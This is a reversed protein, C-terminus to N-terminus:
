QAPPESAAVPATVVDRYRGTLAVVVVVTCCGLRLWSHVTPSGFPGSHISAPVQVTVVTLVTLWPLTPGRATRALDLLATGVVLGATYYSWTAPDTAVRLAVVVAVIGATRHRRWMVFALAAGGLLQVPRCWWPTLTDHSGLLHLVSGASVPIRFGTAAVSGPDAVAFPLWAVVIGATWVALVVSRRRPEVCLLLPVFALAWPKADAAFALLVAAGVGRGGRLAVLAWVTATLALVDDLHGAAAALGEWVPIVFLGVILVRWREATPLLAALGRLALLGAASMAIVAMVKAAATPLATFPVAAVVSVPGFQLDPHSHYLHLGGGPSGFALFTRAATDFFHWSGAPAGLHDAMWALTSLGLVWWLHRTLGTLGAPLQPRPETSLIM